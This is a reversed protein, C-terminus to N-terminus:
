LRLLDVENEVNYNSKNRLMEVKKKFQMIFFFRGGRITKRMTARISKPVEVSCFTVEFYKLGKIIRM